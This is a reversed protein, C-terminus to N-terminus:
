TADPKVVRRSSNISVGRAESDNSMDERERIVVLMTPIDRDFRM